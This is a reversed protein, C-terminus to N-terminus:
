KRPIFKYEFGYKSANKKLWNHTPEVAEKREALKLKTKYKTEVKTYRDYLDKM